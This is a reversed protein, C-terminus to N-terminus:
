SDDKLSTCLVDTMLIFLSCLMSSLFFPCLRVHKKCLKPHKVKIKGRFLQLLQIFFLAQEKRGNKSENLLIKLFLPKAKNQLVPSKKFKFFIGGLKGEEELTIHFWQTNNGPM